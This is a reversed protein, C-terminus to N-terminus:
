GIPVKFKVAWFDCTKGPCIFQYEGAEAFM